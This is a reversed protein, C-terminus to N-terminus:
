EPIIAIAEIEVQFDKPLRGAQICTRAPKSEQFYESYIGNFEDFREIDALFCTTKVVHQIGSGAGDLLRKLNDLTLRAEEEFTGKKPGSTPDMPVQGSIFLLNGARVCPSYPGGPPAAGAVSVIEKQV